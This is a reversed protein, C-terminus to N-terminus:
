RRSYRLALAEPDRGAFYLALTSLNRWGRRLWGDREFRAASTIATVPLPVLHGRLARAIAVDEMLAIERYGGVRDYLTRPLLLGQDGYPLGLYRARVNAWAAVFGPLVGAQDFRLRGWGAKGPRTALHSRVAAAWGPALVTDAHLVMLWEGRAMRAGAALQRGRGRAATVLVAGVEDAVEAVADSSGGDAFIVERILGETVGEALAGLCPGIGAMADLTPILVSIPAPM